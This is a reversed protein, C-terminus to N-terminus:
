AIAQYRAAKEALFACFSEVDGGELDRKQLLTARSDHVLLFLDPTEIVCSLDAYPVTVPASGAASLTMGKASFTVCLQQEPTIREKGALLKEAASSFSSSRHGLTAWIRWIGWLIAVAGGLLPGLLEKPQMAGPIFLLLGLVLFITGLVRGRVPSPDGLDARSNLRDTIKWLGPVKERSLLETRKELARSVQPLLLATDYATLHFCFAVNEM